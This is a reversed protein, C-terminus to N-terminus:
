RTPARYRVAAPGRMVSVTGRVRGQSGADAQRRETALVDERPHTCREPAGRMAPKPQQLEANLDIVDVQQHFSIAHFGKTAADLAEGDAECLGDITREPPVPTHPSVPMVNAIEGRRALHAVREHVHELVPAFV